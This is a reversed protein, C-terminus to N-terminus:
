PSRGSIKKTLNAIRQIKLVSPYTKEVNRCLFFSKQSKKIQKGAEHIPFQHSEGLFSFAGWPLRKKATLSTRLLIFSLNKKILIIEAQSTGGTVKMGSGSNNKDNFSRHQFLFFIATSFIVKDLIFM